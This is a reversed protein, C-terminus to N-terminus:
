LLTNLPLSKLYQQSKKFSEETYIAVEWCHNNGNWQRVLHFGNMEIKAYEKKQDPFLTLLFNHRTRNRKQTLSNKPTIM